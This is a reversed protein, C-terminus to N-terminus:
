GYGQIQIRSLIRSNDTFGIMEGLRLRDHVSSHVLVVPHEFEISFTVRLLGMLVRRRRVPPCYRSNPIKTRWCRLM